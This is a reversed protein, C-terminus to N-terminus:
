ETVSLKIDKEEVAVSNLGYYRCVGQNKWDEPDKDIDSFFLLRPQSSLPKVVLSKGKEDHYLQTREELEERYIAAAGDRMDAMASTVTYYHPEPIVFLLSGFLFFCICGLICQCGHIGWPRNKEECVRKGKKQADEWKCRAWGTVYGVCLVLVLVYMLFMLGQIRGAEINGLIFLPPTAMASVLCYGFVVVLFPCPFEFKVNEWMYWFIPVMCIILLIVSWTTWQNIMLDLCYYFSTCIAKIPNMGSSASARVFNGPAAVGVLFGFGFSVMPIWLKRYKNWQKSVSVFVAVTVLIVAVNLMTMQNGGAVLFGLVSALTLRIGKRKTGSVVISILMGYFFLTLGFLFTYNIAGSYWYFSEARGPIGMCQIMIFITIMSISHCAYCDVGLGKVMLEYFFFMVAVSLVGLVLYSTLFYMKEGWINPPLASLFSSTFCGRWTLWEDTMRSFAEILVKLFSHESQWIHYCRSGNTYDDASPYNFRAIQLLPILSIVNGITLLIALLKPTVWKYIKQNGKEALERVKEIMETGM